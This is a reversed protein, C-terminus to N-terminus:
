EVIQPPHPPDTAKSNPSATARRWRSCPSNPMPTQALPTNPLLLPAVEVQSIITTDKMFKNFAKYRRLLECPYKCNPRVTDKWLFSGDQEGQWFKWCAQLFTSAEVKVENIGTKRAYALHCLVWIKLAGPQGAPTRRRRRRKQM